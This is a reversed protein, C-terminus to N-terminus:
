LDQIIGINNGETDRVIAYAMDGEIEQRPQVVNGGAAVVLNIKLDLDQVTVVVHPRDFTKTRAVIAGNIAGKQEPQMDTGSPATQALLSGDPLGVDPTQWGFVSQYFESARQMNDAPLEFWTVRDAAM